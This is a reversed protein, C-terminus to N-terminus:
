YLDLDTEQIAKMADKIMQRLLDITSPIAINTIVHTADVYDKNGKTDLM